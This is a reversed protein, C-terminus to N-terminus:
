EPNQALEVLAQGREVVDGKEVLLRKVTGDFPASVRIEMKMAELVVLTQGSAVQDGEQVPVDIVQGPMQATLDGASGASGRRRTRTDSVTLEFSQGDVHVFRSENQASVHAFSRTGGEQLLWGGDSLAEAQITYDTDNIKVAFSGDPRSDINLIYSIGSYIYTYIM